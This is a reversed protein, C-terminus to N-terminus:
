KGPRCYYKDTRRQNLSFNMLNYQLEVLTETGQAMVSTDVGIGISHVSSDFAMSTQM